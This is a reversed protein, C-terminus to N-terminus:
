KRAFNRYFKGKQSIKFNQDFSNLFEDTVCQEFNRKNMGNLDIPGFTISNQKSYESYKVQAMM